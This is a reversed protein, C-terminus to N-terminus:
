RHIWCRPKRRNIGQAKDLEIYRRELVLTHIGPLKPFLLISLALIKFLLKVGMTSKLESAGCACVARFCEEPHRYEASVMFLAFGVSFWADAEEPSLAVSASGVGETAVSM